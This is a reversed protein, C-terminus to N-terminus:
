QPAGAVLVPTTNSGTGIEYHYNCEKGANADNWTKIGANLNDCVDQTNLDAATKSNTGITGDNYGVAKNFSTGSLYAYYDCTGRNFGVIQGTTVKTGTVTFGGANYCGYAFSGNQISGVVGGLYMSNSSTMSLNGTNYCGVMAGKMSSTVGGVSQYNQTSIFSITASNRCAIILGEESQKGIIGGSDYDGTISGSFSCNEMTIGNGYGVIGGVFRTGKVSSSVNMNKIVAGADAYGFLGKYDETSNIYLNSITKNDGDFTGIFKRSVQNLGRPIWPKFKTLDINDTLKYSKSVWNPSNLGNNRYSLLKLQEPTKIAYPNSPTGDGGADENGFKMATLTVTATYVKGAELTKGTLTGEYLTKGDGVLVKIDSLAGPFLYINNYSTMKLSGKAIINGEDTGTVTPTAGMTLKAKNYLGTASLTIESIYLPESAGGSFDFKLKLVSVAHHFSFNATSSAAAASAYMYQKNKDLAGTQDASLDLTMENSATVEGPKPYVAYLQDVDTFTVGGTSTFDVSGGATATTFENVTTEGAKWVGIADNAEWALSVSAPNEEDYSIRTDAGGAPTSATVTFRKGINSENLEENNCGTAAISLACIMAGAIWYNKKM